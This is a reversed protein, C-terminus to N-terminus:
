VVVDAPTNTYPLRARGNYLELVVGFLVGNTGTVTPVAKVYKKKVPADVRAVKNDDSAGLQTIAAGTIDTYTSDDDSEQLKFDLAASAGIAGLNVIACCRDFEGRAIGSSSVAGASTVNAPAVAQYVRSNGGIQM